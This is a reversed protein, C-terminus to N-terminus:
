WDSAVVTLGRCRLGGCHQVGACNFTAVQYTAATSGCQRSCHFVTLDSIREAFAHTEAAVQSDCQPGLTGRTGAADM